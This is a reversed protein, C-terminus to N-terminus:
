RISMLPQRIVASLQDATEAEKLAGFEAATRSPVNYLVYRPRAGSVTIMFLQQSSSAFRVQYPKLGTHFLLNPRPGIALELPARSQATTVLLALTGDPAIDFVPGVRDAIVSRAPPRPTEDGDLDFMVLQFDAKTGDKAPELGYLNGAHIKPEILSTFSFSRREITAADPATRLDLGDVCIALVRGETLTVVIWGDKWQLRRARRDNDQVLMVTTKRDLDSVYLAALGANVSTYVLKKGDPSFASLLQYQASSEPTLQAIPVGNAPESKEYVVLQQVQTVPIARVVAYRNGDPSWVPNFALQAVTTLAMADPHLEAVYLGTEQYMTFLSGKPFVPKVKEEKQSDIPNGQADLKRVERACGSFAFAALASLIAIRVPKKM